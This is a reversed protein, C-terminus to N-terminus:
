ESQCRSDVAPAWSSGPLVCGRWREMIQEQGFRQRVQRAERGLAERSDPSAMLEAMVLALTDVDDVPVLRGNWGDRILESPGARCDACIVALGMGMAELVANPFGERRSPPVPLSARALWADVERVEGVFEVRQALQLEESLQLLANRDVGDGLICVRWQPFRQRLRAFARLLLDFGKEMTLRGVAVILPERRCELDPLHRLANPIARVRARCHRELWAAADRTQAVVLDAHPYCLRRLLRWPRSMSRRMAPHTREAVVVRIGLGAAALISCVNSVDIFSLVADPRARRIVRRLRVIGASLAILSLLRVRAGNVGLHVREVAPDLAYFDEIEPGNWTALTVQAGGAAWYNAMESLQREAGGAQLSGVILLLRSPPSQGAPVDSM